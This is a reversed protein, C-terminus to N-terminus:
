EEPEPVLEEIKPIQMGYTEQYSEYEARSHPPKYMLGTCDTASATQSIDPTVCNYDRKKM